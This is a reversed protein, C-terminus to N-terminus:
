SIDKALLWCMSGAERLLPSGVSVWALCAVSTPFTCTNGVFRNGGGPGLVPLGRLSAPQVWQAKRGGVLGGQPHWLLPRSPGLMPSRELTRKDESCRARRAAPSGSHALLRGERWPYLFLLPETCRLGAGLSGNLGNGFGGAGQTLGM